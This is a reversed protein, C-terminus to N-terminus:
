RVNLFVEFSIRSVRGKTLIRRNAVRRMRSASFRCGLRVRVLTAGVRARCTDLLPDIHTESTVKHVASVKRHVNTQSALADEYPDQSREMLKNLDGTSRHSKLKRDLGFTVRSSSWAGNSPAALSCVLNSEQAELRFLMSTCSEPLEQEVIPQFQMSRFNTLDSRQRRLHYSPGTEMSMSPRHTPISAVMNENPEDDTNRGERTLKLFNDVSRRNTINSLRSVSREFEIPTKCRPNQVEELAVRAELVIEKLSVIMNRYIRASNYDLNFEREVSKVGVTAWIFYTLRHAPECSYGSSVRHLRRSVSTWLSPISSRLAVQLV